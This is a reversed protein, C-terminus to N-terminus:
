RSPTDRHDNNRPDQQNKAKRKNNAILETSPTESHIRVKSGAIASPLAALAIREGAQVGDTIYVFDGDTKLMSVSRNQLQDQSDVVWLKNGTRLIHRPVVILNEFLRGEISANVFSGVRLLPTDSNLSYPDEVRAVLFLVRSREDLVAESRVITARWQRGQEDSLTATSQNKNVTNDTNKDPDDNVNNQGSGDSLAPLNLYDLKSDAIPLRVEARDVSFLEGVQGGVTLYQGLDVNRSRIIARYPARITTRALDTQASYLDAQAADLNAQAEALQPHRLALAKASSTVKSRPYKEYDNKAVASRGQEQSLNSEATAVAAEARKLQAQYNRDDIQLLVDGKQVLAGAEFGDALSVVKGAVESVLNTATRAQVSGQSRVHIRLSQETAVAVDVLLPAQQIHVQEPAPRLWYLAAAIVIGIAIILLVGFIQKTKTSL